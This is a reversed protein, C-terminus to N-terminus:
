EDYFYKFLIAHHTNLILANFVMLSNEIDFDEM